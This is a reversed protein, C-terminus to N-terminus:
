LLSRGRGFHLFCESSRIFEVDNVFGHMCTSKVDKGEAIGMSIYFISTPYFWPLLFSKPSIWPKIRSRYKINRRRKKSIYFISTPYFWPLLFSKPSFTDFLHM